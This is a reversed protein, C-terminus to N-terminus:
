PSSATLMASAARGTFVRSLLYLTLVFLVYCGAAAIWARTGLAKWVAKYALFSSAIVALSIMMGAVHGIVPENTALTFDVTLGYRTELRVERRVLQDLTYYVLVTLLVGTIWTSTAGLRLLALARSTPKPVSKRERDHDRM